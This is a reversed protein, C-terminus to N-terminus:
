YALPNTKVFHIDGKQMFLRTGKSGSEKNYLFIMIAAGILETISLAIAAGVIGTKKILIIDLIIVLLLLSIFVKINKSIKNLSSFYVSYLTTQARAFFAPLVLIFPIISEQYQTSWIMPIAFVAVFGGVIMLVILISNIIRMFREFIFLEMKKSTLLPFALSSFLLPLVLYLQALKTSLSYYGVQVKGLQYEIIWIEVRTYLFFSLNEIYSAFAYLLPKKAHTSNTQTEQGKLFTFYFYLLLFLSQLISSISLIYITAYKDNFLNFYHNILLICIEFMLFFASVRITFNAKLIGNYISVINDKLAFGLFLIIGNLGLLFSSSPWILFSQKLQFFIFEASCLIVFQAITSYFFLRFLQHINNPKQASYFTLATPIGYSTLLLALSVNTIILSLLGFTEPTTVIPLIITLIIQFIMFLGRERLNTLIYNKLDNNKM